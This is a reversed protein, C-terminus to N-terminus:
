AFPRTASPARTSWRIPRAGCPASSRRLWRRHRPRVPRARDALAGRSALTDLGILAAGMALGAFAFGIWDFPRRPVPELSPTWAWALIVGILGLPLNVYFIARWSIADTLFGGLPPGILPATLGPWTLLATARLLGTKPTTRLVALRGVPVMLAGGVGQLARAAVFFWPTESAGCLASAFTFLVIAGTFVARAGFREVLWAGPLIFVALTLSYISVGINLDLAHVGLAAAMKPLATTLISGDLFEMFFTAAVLLALRTM